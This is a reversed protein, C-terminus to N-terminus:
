AETLDYEYLDFETWGTDPYYMRATSVRYFGLGLYLKEAPLNGSLVDLRIVLRGEERAKDKAFRVMERGLGRGQTTPLVGLAHIVSVQEPHAEARWPAGSYGENCQRDMIMACATEGALEGVYLQQGDIAQRLQGDAPYVEKEWGPKYPADRMLDILRHYFARVAPFEEPRAPRIELM